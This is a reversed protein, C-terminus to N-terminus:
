RGEAHIKSASKRFKGASKAATKSMSTDSMSEVDLISLVIKKGVIHFFGRHLECHSSRRPNGMSISPVCIPHPMFM